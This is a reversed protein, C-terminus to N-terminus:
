SGFLSTCKIMVIMKIMKYDDLDLNGIMVIMFSMVCKERSTTDDSQADFALYPPADSGDGLGGKGWDLM